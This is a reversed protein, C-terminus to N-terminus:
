LISTLSIWNTVFVLLVYELYLKWVASEIDCQQNWAPANILVINIRRQQLMSTSISTTLWFTFVAHDKSKTLIKSNELSLLSSTKSIRLGLPLSKSLNEFEAMLFLPKSLDKFENITSAPTKLSWWVWYETSFSIQSIEFETSYIDLFM